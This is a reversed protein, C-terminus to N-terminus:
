RAGPSTVGAEREDARAMLSSIGSGIRRAYHGPSRYGHWNNAGASDPGENQRELFEADSLTAARLKTM